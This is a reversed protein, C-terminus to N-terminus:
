LRRAAQPSLTTQVNHNLMEGRKLYVKDFIKGIVHFLSVPSPGGNGVYLRVTEGSKAVIASDGAMSGVAGNFVMYEAEERIAKEMDFPQLGAEDYCGKTYFEGQMLYYERDVEAIGQAPEVFILGYMGNAVHIGVPATACHIYYLGPNLAKFSFQSTHGTATLSSPAGGGPDTMAHLDINHPMKSTPHNSLYFEVEDGERIRIFKGPVSGGFTWFTYGVGDALRKVVEM